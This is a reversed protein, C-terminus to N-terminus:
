LEGALKKILEIESNTLSGTDPDVDIFIQILKLLLSHEERSASSTATNTSSFIKNRAYKSVSVGKENACEKVLDIQEQSVKIIIQPYKAKVETTEEEVAQM